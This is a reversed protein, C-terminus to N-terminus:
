SIFYVIEKYLENSQVFFHEFPTSSFRVWGQHSSAIKPSSGVQWYIRAYFKYFNCLVVSMM